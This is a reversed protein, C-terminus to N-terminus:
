FSFILNAQLNWRKRAWHTTEYCSEQMYFHMLFCDQLPKLKQMIYCICCNSHAPKKWSLSPMSKSRSWFMTWWNEHLISLWSHLKESSHWPVAVSYLCRALDSILPHLPLFLLKERNQMNKQITWMEQQYYCRCIWVVIERMSIKTFISETNM